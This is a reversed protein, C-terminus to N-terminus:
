KSLYRIGRELRETLQPRPRALIAMGTPGRATMEGEGDVYVQIRIYCDEAVANRKMLGIIAEAMLAPRPIEDLGLVAASRVLRELHDGMRFVAGPVFSGNLWGVPCVPGGGM